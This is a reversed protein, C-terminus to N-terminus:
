KMSFGILISSKPTGNNKSVGLNGAENMACRFSVSFQLTPFQSVSFM